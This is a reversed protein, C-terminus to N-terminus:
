QGSYKMIINQLNMSWEQIKPMMSETLKAANDSMKKGIPSEYFQILQKIEAQTFNTTYFNQQAELIPKLSADFEKLFAEQKAKPIMTIVQEKALAIQENAGSLELFKNVDAKFAEDQAFSLQATLLVAFVFLLKKM